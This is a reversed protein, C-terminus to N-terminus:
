MIEHHWFYVHIHGAYISTSKSAITTAFYPKYQTLFKFHHGLQFTKLMSAVKVHPKGVDKLSQAELFKHRIHFLHCLYEWSMMKVCNCFGRCQHMGIATLWSTFSPVSHFVARHNASFGFTFLYSDFDWIYVFGIHGIIAWRRPPVM